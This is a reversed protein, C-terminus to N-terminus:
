NFPIFIASDICYTGVIEALHKNSPQILRKTRPLTTFAQGVAFKQVNIFKHGGHVLIKSSSDILPFGLYAYLEQTQTSTSLLGQSYTCKLKESKDVTFGNFPNSSPFIPYHYYTQWENFYFPVNKSLSINAAPLIYRGKQPFYHFVLQVQLSTHLHYADGSYNFIFYSNGLKTENWNSGLTIL